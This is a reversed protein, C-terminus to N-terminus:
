FPEEKGISGDEEREGARTSQMKPFERAVGGM